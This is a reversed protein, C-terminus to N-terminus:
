YFCITSPDPVQLMVPRDGVIPDFTGQKLAINARLMAEEPTPAAGLISTMESDLVVWTGIPQEALLADLSRREQQAEQAM